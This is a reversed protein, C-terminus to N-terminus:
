VLGTSKGPCHPSAPTLVAPPLPIAPVLRCLLAPMPLFLKNWWSLCLALLLTPLPHPFTPPVVM